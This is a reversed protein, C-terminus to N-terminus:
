KISESFFLLLLYLSHRAYSRAKQINRGHTEKDLGESLLGHFPNNNAGNQLAPFQCVPLHHLWGLDTGSSKSCTEQCVSCHVKLQILCVRLLANIIALLRELSPVPQAHM